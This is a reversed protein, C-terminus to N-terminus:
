ITIQFKSLFSNDLHLPFFYNISPFNITIIPLDRLMNIKASNFLIIYFICILCIVQYLSNAGYVMIIALQGDEWPTVGYFKFLHKGKFDTVGQIKSLTICEKYIDYLAECPKHKTM